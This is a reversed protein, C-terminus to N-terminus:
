QWVLRHVTMLSMLQIDRLYCCDRKRKLLFTAGLQFRNSRSCPDLAFCHMFTPVFSMHQFTFVLQGESTFAIVRLYLKCEQEQLSRKTNMHTRPTKCLRLSIYTLSLGIPKQNIQSSSPPDLCIHGM